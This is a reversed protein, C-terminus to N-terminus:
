IYIYIIYTTLAVPSLVTYDECELVVTGGYTFTRIGNIAFQSGIKNYVTYIHTHVHITYIYSHM